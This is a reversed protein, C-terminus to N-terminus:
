PQGEEDDALPLEPEREPDLPGSEPLEEVLADYIPIETPGDLRSM